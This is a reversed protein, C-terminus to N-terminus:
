LDAEQQDEQLRNAWVNERYLAPEDSRRKTELSGNWVDSIVTALRGENAKGKMTMQGERPVTM